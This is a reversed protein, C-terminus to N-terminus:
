AFGKFVLSEFEKFLGKSSPHKSLSSRIVTALPGCRIQSASAYAPYASCRLLRDPNRLLKNSIGSLKEGIKILTKFSKEQPFSIFLPNVLKLSLLVLACKM